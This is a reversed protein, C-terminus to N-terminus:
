GGVTTGLAGVMTFSFDRPFDKVLFSRPFFDAAKTTNRLLLITSNSEAVRSNCLAMVQVDKRKGGGKFPGLDGVLGVQPGQHQLPPKLWCNAGLRFSMLHVLKYHLRAVFCLAMARRKGRIKMAEKEQREIGSSDSSIFGVFHRM